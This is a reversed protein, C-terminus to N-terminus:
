IVNDNRLAKTLKLIKRKKIYGFIKWEQDIFAQGKIANTDQPNDREFKVRAAVPGTTM